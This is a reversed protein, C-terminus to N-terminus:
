QNITPPQNDYCPPILKLYRLVNIESRSYSYERGNTEFLKRCREEEKQRLLEREQWFDKTGM